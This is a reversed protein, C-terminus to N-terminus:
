SREINVKEGGLRRRIFAFMVRFKGAELGNLMILIYRTSFLFGVRKYTGVEEYALEDDGHM